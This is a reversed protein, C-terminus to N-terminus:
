RLCEVEEDEMYTDLGLLLLPGCRVLVCVSTSPPVSGLEDWKVPQKAQGGGEKRGGEEKAQGVWVSARVKEHLV